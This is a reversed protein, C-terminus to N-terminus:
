RARKTRRKRAARQVVLRRRHQQRRANAKVDSELKCFPLECALYEGLGLGCEACYFPKGDYPTRQEWDVSM